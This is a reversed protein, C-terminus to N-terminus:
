NVNKEAALAASQNAGCNVGPRKRCNRKPTERVTPKGRFAWAVERHRRPRESPSPLGSATEDGAERPSRSRLLLGIVVLLAVWAAGLAYGGLVDTVWHAGLYVRSAGVVLALMAAGSWVLARRGYPAGASLILALMAYFAV